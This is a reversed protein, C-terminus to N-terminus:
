WHNFSSISCSSFTVKVGSYTVFGLNGYHYSWLTWLIMYNAYSCSTNLINDCLKRWVWILKTKNCSQVNPYITGGAWSKIGVSYSSELSQHTLATESTHPLSLQNSQKIQRGPTEHHNLPEEERHWQITQPKLNHYKRIM